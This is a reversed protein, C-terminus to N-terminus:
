EANNVVIWELVVEPVFRLISSETPGCKPTSPGPMSPV